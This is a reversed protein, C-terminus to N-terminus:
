YKRWRFCFAAFIFRRAFRTLRRCVQSLALGSLTSRQPQNEPTQSSAVRFSGNFEAALLLVIVFILVVRPAIKEMNWGASASFQM